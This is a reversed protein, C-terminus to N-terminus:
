RRPRCHSPPSVSTLACFCFADAHAKPIKEPRVEPLPALGATAALFATTGAVQACQPPQLRSITPVPGLLRHCQRPHPFYESLENTFYGHGFHPEGEIASLRM